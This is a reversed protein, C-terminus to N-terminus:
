PRSTSRAATRIKSLIREPSTNLKAMQLMAGRMREVFAENHTEEDTGEWAHADEHVASMLIDGMFGYDEKPTSQGDSYREIWELWRLVQSNKNTSWSTGVRTMMALRSGTSKGFSVHYKLSPDGMRERLLPTMLGSILNTLLARQRRQRITLRSSDEKQWRDDSADASALHKYRGLGEDRWAKFRDPINDYRRHRSARGRSEDLIDQRLQALSMKQGDWPFEVAALYHALKAGDKDESLGDRISKADINWWHDNVASALRGSDHHVSRSAMLHDSRYVYDVPLGRPQWSGDAMALAAAQSVAAFVAKQLREIYRQKESLGSRDRDLTISHDHSDRSSPLALSLNRARMFEMLEQPLLSFLQPDQDLDMVAFGAQVVGSHESARQIVLVREGNMHWDVGGREELQDLRSRRNYVVDVGSPALSGVHRKLGKGILTAPGLAGAYNEIETGILAARVELAMRNQEIGGPREEVWDVQTGTVEGAVESLKDVMWTYTGDDRRHKYIELETHRDKGLKGTVLRVRDSGVLFKYWGRGNFGLSPDQGESFSSRGLALLFQVIEYVDMGIGDDHATLRLQTTGASESLAASIRIVPSVGAGLSAKVGNQICERVFVHGSEPGIARMINNDTNPYGMKPLAEALDSATLAHGKRGVVELNARAGALASLPVDELTSIVIRGHKPPNSLVGLPEINTDGRLFTVLAPHSETDDVAILQYNHDAIYEALKMGSKPDAQLVAFWRSVVANFAANDGLAQSVAELCRAATARHSDRLNKIETNWRAANDKDLRDLDNSLAYPLAWGFQELRHQDWTIRSLNHVLRMKENQTLTSPYALAAKPLPTSQVEALPRLLNEVVRTDNYTKERVVLTDDKNWPWAGELFKSWGTEHGPVPSSMEGELENITQTNSFPLEVAEYRRGNFTRVGRTSRFPASFLTPSDVPEFDKEEIPRGVQGLIEWGQWYKEHNHYYDVIYFLRGGIKYLSSYDYDIGDLEINSIRRMGGPAIEYLHERDTNDVDLRTFVRGDIAYPTTIRGGFNAGLSGVFPPLDPALGYIDAIRNLQGIINDETEGSELSRIIRPGVYERVNAPIGPQASLLNHAIATSRARDPRVWGASARSRGTTQHAVKRKAHAFQGPVQENGWLEAEPTPRDGYGTWVSLLGNLLVAPEGQFASNQQFKVVNDKLLLIRQAIRMFTLNMAVSWVSRGAGGLLRGGVTAPDFDWLRSDLAVPVKGALAGKSLRLTSNESSPVIVFNSAKLKLVATQVLDHLALFLDDRRDMSNIRGQLVDMAAALSNIVPAMRQPDNSFADVANILLHRIAAVTIPELIIQERSELQFSATPLDLAVEQALEEGRLTLTMVGTGGVLLKVMGTKTAPGPKYYLDEGDATSDHRQLAQALQAGSRRSSVGPVPIFEAIAEPRLGRGGDKFWLTRGGNRMGFRVSNQGLRYGVPRNGLTRHSSLDNFLRGSSGELIPGRRSLALKEKLHDYYGKKDIPEKKELVVETGSASLDGAERSHSGMDLWLHGGERRFTVWYLLPSGAENGQFTLSEGEELWGVGQFVGMGYRGIADGMADFGNNIFEVGAQYQSGTQRKLDSYLDAAEFPFGARRREDAIELLTEVWHRRGRQLASLYRQRYGERTAENQDLVNRILPVYLDLRFGRKPHFFDAPLDGKKSSGNGGSSASGAGGKSLRSSRNRSAPTAPESQYQSANTLVTEDIVQAGIPSITNEYGHNLEADVASGAASGRPVAELRRAMGELADRSTAAPKDPSQPSDAFLTAPVLSLAQPMANGIPVAAPTIPILSLPGLTAPNIPSITAANLSPVVSRNRPVTQTAGERGIAYAPSNSWLLIAVMGLTGCKRMRKWYLASCM